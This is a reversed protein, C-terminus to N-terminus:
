QTYKRVEALTEPTIRNKDFYVIANQFKVPNSLQIQATSWSKASSHGLLILVAELVERVEQSPHM